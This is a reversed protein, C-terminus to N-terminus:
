DSKLWDTVHDFYIEQLEDFRTVNPIHNVELLHKEGNKGVIYDNAILSLGFHERIALTDALLEADMDMISAKPDHISKLWDNGELNIQLYQDGIAVVRVSNGEFFPELVSAETSQWHENFRTKNEGCHWNGWKGVTMKNVSIATDASIMGRRSNFRSVQLARALCPLKLRCNMMGLANPYCDGGWIALGTILDFDDEFIGHFIVKDIKLFGVGNTREVYLLGEEVYFKPVMDHVVIPGFHTEKIRDVIARDLGIVCLRTRM